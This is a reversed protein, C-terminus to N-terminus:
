VPNPKYLKGQNRNLGGILRGKIGIPAFIGVKQNSSKISTTNQMQQLQAAIVAKAPLACALRLRRSVFATL